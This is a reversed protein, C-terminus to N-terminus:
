EASTDSEGEDVVAGDLERVEQIRVAVTEAHPMGFLRGSAVAVPAWKGPEIFPSIAKASSVNGTSSKARKFAPGSSAAPNRSSSRSAMCSTPNTYKAPWPMGCNNVSAM